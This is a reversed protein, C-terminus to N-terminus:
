PKRFILTMRNSEGMAEMKAKLEANNKSTARRRCDGSWTRPGASGNTNCQHRNNDVFEFGAAKMQEIVFSQKLYGNQGAAWDDPMKQRAEHQVVGVIGGPKLVDFADKLAAATGGQGDFRALNHLARIFLVADATGKM